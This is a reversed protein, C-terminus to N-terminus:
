TFWHPLLVPLSSDPQLVPDPQFSPIRNSRTILSKSVYICGRKPLSSYLIEPVNSPNRQHHKTRNLASSPIVQTKMSRCFWKLFNSSGLRFLVYMMYEHLSQSSKALSFDMVRASSSLQNSLAYAVVTPFFHISSRFLFRFLVESGFSQGSTTFAMHSAWM